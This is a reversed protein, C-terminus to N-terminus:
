THRSRGRRKKVGATFLRLIDRRQKKGNARYSCNPEMSKAFILIGSTDRDLRHVIFIRKVSKSYGKRVYDTLIAYLTRSKDRDTGMTLLGFPKVVVLIDSDEYLISIDKPLHKNGPSSRKLM